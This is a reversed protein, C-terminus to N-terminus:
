FIWRLDLRGRFSYESMDQPVIDEYNTMDLAFSLSHENDRKTNLGVHFTHATLKAGNPQLASDLSYGVEWDTKPSPQEKLMIGGKRVIQNRPRDFLSEYSAALKMTKSLGSELSWKETGTPAGITGLPAQANAAEPHSQLDHLLKTTRNIEWDIHYKRIIQIVGDPLTREKYSIDAHFKRKPDPDTTYSIIRDIARVQSPMIVGMYGLGFKDKGVMADFRAVKNEKQWVSRDSASQYGFSFTAQKFLWLDVPKATSIGFEGTAKTNRGDLRQEDYKGAFQLGGFAGQTLGFAQNQAGPGISSSRRMWTYNFVTGKKLEYDFGASLIREDDAGDNRDITTQALSLNLNRIAKSQMSYTSINEFRGDDLRTNKQEAVAAINSMPTGEYRWFDIAQSFQVSSQLGRKEVYDRYATFKGFRGLSRELTSNEHIDRLLLSDQMGAHTRDSLQLLKTHKDPAFSVFYKNQNRAALQSANDASFQYTELTLNRLLNFKGVIDYQSFGQLQRLFERDADAIDGFRTFGAAVTRLNATVDFRGNALRLGQKAIGGNADGANSQSYAVSLDRLTTFSLDWQNRRIGTENAYVKREMEILDGIRTFGSSISQDVYNFAFKPAGVSFRLRNIGGTESGITLQDLSLAAGKHNYAFRLFRRRIGQEKAVQAMDPGAVGQDAPNFQRKIEKVLEGKEADALDGIRNFGSSANRMGYELNWNDGGLMLSQRFFAGTDGSLRLQSYSNWGRDKKNSFPTLFSLALSQRHLGREKAWQGREDEALDNFRTFGNAISQDLFNAKFASSEFALKQRAIGGTVERIDNKDFSLQGLAFKLAGGFSERSLGKEKAWQGRDAEALDNFRAFNRDIRRSSYYLSGVQSSTTFNLLEISGKGDSIQNFGTALKGVKQDYGLSFGLRTLGKEKQWQSIQGAAIGQTQMASFGNFKEGIDQFSANFRLGNASGLSLEQLIFQGSSGPTKPVSRRDSSSPDASVSVGKQSSFFFLSQLAGTQSLKFNSRLGFAASRIISGNALREVPNFGYLASVTGQEGFQLALLPLTLSAKQVALKDSHRYSVRVSQQARIPFTFSILGSAQDLWYDVGARLSRGNLNVSESGPVIGGYRLAYGMGEGTGRLMDVAFEGTEGTRNVNQRPDFGALNASFEQWNQSHAATALIASISAALVRKM